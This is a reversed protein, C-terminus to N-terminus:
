KGAFYNYDKLITDIFQKHPMGSPKQINLVAEIRATLSKLIDLKGQKVASQFVDKILQVDKENLNAAQSFIPKYTQEIEEFISQSLKTKQKEAVVVTKAALDGLRQNKDTLLMVILALGPFINIEFLRFVWRILFDWIRPHSNDSKVIRIKVIQKGLSQGNNWYQLVPYYLFYPLMLVSVFAWTSVYKTLDTFTLLYIVFYYFIILFFVDILFAAFRQGIGALNQNIGVNQATRIQFDSMKENILAVFKLFYKCKCTNKGFKDLKLRLTFKLM